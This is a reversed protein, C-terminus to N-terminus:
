AKPLSRFVGDADPPFPLAQLVADLNLPGYLHPYVEGHSNEWRLEARLTAPNIWLLLLGQQGTYYRNATDLAQEPRSFHIFGETQLSTACYEGATQASQWTQSDCIHVIQNM